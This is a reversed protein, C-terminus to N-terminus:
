EAERKLGKGILCYLLDEIVASEQTSVPIKGLPGVNATQATQEQGLFDLTLFPREPFLRKPRQPGPDEPM